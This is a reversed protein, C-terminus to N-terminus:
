LFDYGISPNPVVGDWLSYVKSGRLGSWFFLFYINMTYITYLIYDILCLTYNITLLKYYMYVIYTM